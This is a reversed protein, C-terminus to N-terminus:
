VHTKEEIERLERRFDSSRAKVQEITRGNALVDVILNVMEPWDMFTHITDSDIDLLEGRWELCGGESKEEWVNLVLM